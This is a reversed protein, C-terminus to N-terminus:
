IKALFYLVIHYNGTEPNKVMGGGNLLKTTRIGDIKIIERVEDLLTILRDQIVLGKSLDKCIVNFELQYDRVIGTGLPKYTYQIYTNTQEKEPKDVLYIYKGGLLQILTNDELLYLRIEKM